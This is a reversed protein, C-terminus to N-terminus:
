VAKTQQVQSSSKTIPVLCAGSIDNLVDDWGTGSRESDAGTNWTPAGVVLGDFEVLTSVDVDSIDKPDATGMKQLGYLRNLDRGVYTNHPMTLYIPSCGSTWRSAQTTLVGNRCPHYIISTHPKFSLKSHRSSFDSIHFYRKSSLPWMRLRALARASFYASRLMALPPGERGCPEGPLSGESHEGSTYSVKLKAPSSDM